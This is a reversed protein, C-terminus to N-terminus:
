DGYCDLGGFPLPFCSTHSPKSLAREDLENEREMECELHAEARDIEQDKETVLAAAAGCAPDSRALLKYIGGARAKEDLSKTQWIEVPGCQQLHQRVCEPSLHDMVEQYNTDQTSAAALAKKRQRALRALDENKTNATGPEYLACVLDCENMARQFAAGCTNFMEVNAQRFAAVADVVVKDDRKLLPSIAPPAPAAAPKADFCGTCANVLLYSVLAVGARLAGGHTRRIRSDTSLVKDGGSFSRPLKRNCDQCITFETEDIESVSRTQANPELRQSAM